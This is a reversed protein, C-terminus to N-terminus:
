FLDKNEYSKESLKGKTRKGVLSEFCIGIVQQQRMSSWKSGSNNEPNKARFNPGFARLYKLWNTAFLIFEIESVRWLSDRPNEPCLPHIPPNTPPHHPTTASAWNLTHTFLTARRSQRPELIYGLSRRRRGMAPRLNACFTKLPQNPLHENVKPQVQRPYLTQEPFIPIRFCAPTPDPSPDPVLIRM